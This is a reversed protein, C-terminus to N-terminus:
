APADQRYAPHLHFDECGVPGPQTRHNYGLLVFPIKILEWVINSVRQRKDRDVQNPFTQLRDQLRTDVGFRDMPLDLGQFRPTAFPPRQRWVLEIVQEENYSAFPSVCSKPSNLDAFQKIAGVRRRL